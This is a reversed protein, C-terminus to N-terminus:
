HIQSGTRATRVPDQPQAAGLMRGTLRSHMRQCELPKSGTTRLRGRENQHQGVAMENGAQANHATDDYLVQMCMM